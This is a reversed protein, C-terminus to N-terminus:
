SFLLRVGAAVSKTWKEGGAKGRGGRTQGERTPYALGEHRWLALLEDDGVVALLLLSKFRANPKLDGEELGKMHSVQAM